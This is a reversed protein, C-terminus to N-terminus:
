RLGTINGDGRPLQGDGNFSSDEWNQKYRIIVGHSNKVPVAHYTYDYTTENLGSFTTGAPFALEPWVPSAYAPNGNQSAPIRVPVFAKNAKASSYFVNWTGYGSMPGTVQTPKLVKGLDNGGQDPTFAGPMDKFTGLDNVQAWYMYPATAHAPDTSKGLYHLQLTRTFNDYAWYGNGGGDPRNRLQTTATVTHSATLTAASAESATAAMAATAGLSSLGIVAAAVTGVITHKQM